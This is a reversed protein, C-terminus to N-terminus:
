SLQLMVGIVRESSVAIILCGMFCVHRHIFVNLHHIEATWRNEQAKEM